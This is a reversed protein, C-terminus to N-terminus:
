QRPRAFLGDLGMALCGMSGVLELRDDVSANQGTESAYVQANSVALVVVSAFAGLWLGNQAFLSM